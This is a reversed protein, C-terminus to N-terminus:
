PKQKSPCGRKRALSDTRYRHSGTFRTLWHQGLPGAPMHAREIPPASTLWAHEAYEFLPYGDQLSEPERRNHPEPSLWRRTRWSVSGSLPESAHRVTPATSDAQQALWVHLVWIAQITLAEATSSSSDSVRSIIRLALRHQADDPLGLARLYARIRRSASILAHSAEPTKAPGRRSLATRKTRPASAVPKTTRALADM